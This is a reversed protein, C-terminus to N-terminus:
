LLTCVNAFTRLGTLTRRPAGERWFDLPRVPVPALPLLRGPQDSANSGLAIRM